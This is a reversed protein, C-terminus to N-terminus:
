STSTIMPYSFEPLHGLRVTGAKNMNKALAIMEVINTSAVLPEGIGAFYITKPTVLFPSLKEILEIPFDPQPPLTFGPISHGCM